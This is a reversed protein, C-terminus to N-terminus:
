PMRLIREARSSRDWRFEFPIDCQSAFDDLDRVVEYKGEIHITLFGTMMTYHFRRGLLRACRDNDNDRMM